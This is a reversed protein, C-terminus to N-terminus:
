SVSANAASKGRPHSTLAYKAAAPQWRGDACTIICDTEHVHTSPSWGHYTHTRSHMPTELWAIPSLSSNGSGTLFVTASRAAYMQERGPQPLSVMPGCESGCVDSPVPTAAWM